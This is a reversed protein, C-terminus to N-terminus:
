GATYRARPGPHTALVPRATIPGGRCRSWGSRAKRATDPRSTTKAVGVGEVVDHVAAGTAGGDEGVGIVTHVKEVGQFVGDIAKADLEVAVRQHGVVAVQEKPGHVAIQRRDHFENIALKRPSDIPPM